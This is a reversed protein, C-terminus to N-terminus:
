SAGDRAAAWEDCWKIYDRIHPDDPTEFSRMVMESHLHDPLPRKSAERAYQWMAAPFGGLQDEGPKWRGKIVQEAYEVTALAAYRPSRSRLDTTIFSEADAWPGEVLACAYRCIDRIQEPLPAGFPSGYNTGFMEQELGPWRTKRADIAYHVGYGLLCGSNLIASELEPWEGRVVDSAYDFVFGWEPILYDTNLKDTFSEPASMIAHLLLQELDTWRIGIREKTYRVCAHLLYINKAAQDLLHPEWDTWRGNVLDLYKWIYNGITAVEYAGDVCEKGVAPNSIFAQLIVPELEDWRGGIVKRAYAVCANMVEPHVAALKLAQRELERWRPRRSKIASRLARVITEPTILPNAKEDICDPNM